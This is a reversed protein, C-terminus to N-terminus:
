SGIFKRFKKEKLYYLCGATGLPEREEIYEIDVGFKEGDKFYSKIM